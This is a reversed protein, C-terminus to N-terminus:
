ETKENFKRSCNLAADGSPAPPPSCLLAAPPLLLGRSGDRGPSVSLDSSSGNLASGAAVGPAVLGWHVRGWFGVQGWVLIM